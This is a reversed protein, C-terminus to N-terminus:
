CGRPLVLVCNYGSEGLESKLAFDIFDERHLAGIVIASNRNLIIREQYMDNAHAIAWDISQQSREERRGEIHKKFKEYLNALSNSIIENKKIDKGQNKEVERKLEEMQRYIAATQGEEDYNEFGVGYLKHYNLCVLNGGDTGGPKFSARFFEDSSNRFIEKSKDRKERFKKDKDWGLKDERYHHVRGELCVVQLGANLHLSELIRYISVQADFVNNWQGELTEYPIGPVELTHTQFVVYLTPKSPDNGFEAVEDVYRELGQFSSSVSRQEESLTSVNDRTYLYTGVGLGITGVLGAVATRRLWTRNTRSIQNNKQNKRRRRDM